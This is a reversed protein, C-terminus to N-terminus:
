HTWLELRQPSVLCFWSAFAPKKIPFDKTSRRKLSNSHFNIKLSYKLKWEFAFYRITQKDIIAANTSSIYLSTAKCSEFEM